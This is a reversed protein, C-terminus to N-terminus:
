RCLGQKCYLAQTTSQVKPHQLSGIACACKAARVNFNKCNECRSVKYLYVFVKCFKGSYPVTNSKNHDSHTNNVLLAHSNLKNRHRNSKHTDSKGITFMILARFQQASKFLLVIAM